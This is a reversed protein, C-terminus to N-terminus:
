EESTPMPESSSSEDEDAHHHQHNQEPTQNQNGYQAMLKKLRSLAIRKVTAQKDKRQQTRQAQTPNKRKLSKIRRKAKSLKNKKM